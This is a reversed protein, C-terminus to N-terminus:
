FLKYATLRNLGTTLLMNNPTVALRGGTPAEWVIPHTSDVLDVAWTRSNSSAFIHSDTVVVNGTLVESGPLPTSWLVSGTAADIASLVHADNRVAYIVGDRYAFATSYEATTRWRISATDLSMAVIKSASVFRKGGSFLYVGGKGDLVPGAEYSYGRFEYEPDVVSRTIRGNAQSIVHLEKGSYYYLNDKDAAMSQGGWLPAAIQPTEFDKAGTVADYGYVVGGFYGAAVYVKDGVAVPQNFDTWQASFKMQNKFAGTNLDFVWQPNEDSSTFMSTIHVLGNSISPGSFYFLDGMDYSWIQRGDVPDFAITMATGSFAAGGNRGATVLVRGLSAAPANIRGNVPGQWDWM